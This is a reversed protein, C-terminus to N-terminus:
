ARAGAAVPLVAGSFGLREHSLGAFPEVAQALQAFAEAASVPAEAGTAAAGLAGLVWWAPQAMGPATRAQAYRQVRGDRNVFTGDEEASNAIPLILDPAHGETEPMTTGLYIEKGETRVVAAPDDLVLVVAAQEAAALAAPIRHRATVM